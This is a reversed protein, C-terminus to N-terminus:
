NVAAGQLMSSMSSFAVTNASEALLNLFAPLASLRLILDTRARPIQHARANISGTCEM